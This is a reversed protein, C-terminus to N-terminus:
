SLDFFYKPQFSTTLRDKWSLVREPALQCIPRSTSGNERQHSMRKRRNKSGAIYSLTSDLIYFTFIDKVM